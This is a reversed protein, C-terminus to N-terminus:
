MNGYLCNVAKRLLVIALLSCLQYSRHLNNALNAFISVLEWRCLRQLLRASSEVCSWRSPVRCLVLCFITRTLTEYKNSCYLQRFKSNFRFLCRGPAFFVGLRRWRQGTRQSPPAVQGTFPDCGILANEKRTLWLCDIDFVL